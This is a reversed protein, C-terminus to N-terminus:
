YDSFLSRFSLSYKYLGISVFIIICGYRIPISSDLTFRIVMRDVEAPEM